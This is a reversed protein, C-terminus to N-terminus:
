PRRRSPVGRPPSAVTQGARVGVPNSHYSPTPTQRRPGFGNRSYSSPYRGRNYQSYYPVFPLSYYAIGPVPSYYDYSQYVPAPQVCCAPAGYVNEYPVRAMTTMTPATSGPTGPTNLYVDTSRGSADAGVGLQYAPGTAMMAQLVPAPVNAKVLAAVEDGTLQFPQATALLWERVVSSDTHRLAEVVDGPRLPSAAEARSTMVALRQRGVRAALERPVSAPLGADRWRQVHTIVGGGSRLGEVQLWEGTPLISMLTTRSGAAGNPDCILEAHLYVRRPLSSSSTQEQGRCGQEDIVRPRGSADIRHRDTVRGDSVAVIEVDSSGTIPVVCSLAQETAAASDARWCGVFPYFRADTTRTAQAHVGGASLFLATVAFVVPRM